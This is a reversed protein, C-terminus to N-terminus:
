SSLDREVEEVTGDKWKITWIKSNGDESWSEKVIKGGKAVIERRYWDIAIQAKKVSRNRNYETGAEGSVNMLITQVDESNIFKDFAKTDEGKNFYIQGAIKSKAKERGTIDGIKIAGAKALKEAAKMLEPDKMASRLFNEKETPDTMQWEHKPMFTLDGLQAAQWKAIAYERDESPLASWQRLSVKGIGPVPVPYLDEQPSPKIAKNTLAEKYAKDIEFKAEDLTFRKHKYDLDILKLKRNLESDEKALDLKDRDLNLRRDFQSQKSKLSMGKYMMDFVDSVKKRGLDEQTLKMGMIASLNEPTLGALDSASYGPQSNSPNLYNDMTPMQTSQSTGGTSPILSPSESKEGFLLSPVNLQTMGKGDITIKGGEPIDGALMKSMMKMFNQSAINQQVAGGLNAGGTGQMIDQGGASLFQLFMKNQLLSNLDGAM